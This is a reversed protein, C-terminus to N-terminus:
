WSFRLLLLQFIINLANHPLILKKSLLSSVKSEKLSDHRGLVKAARPKTKKRVSHPSAPAALGLRQPSDSNGNERPTDYDRADVGGSRCTDMTTQIAFSFNRANDM